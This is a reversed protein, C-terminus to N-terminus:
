NMTLLSMRWVKYRFACEPGECECSALEFPGLGDEGTDQVCATVVESACGGIVALDGTSYRDSGDPEPKYHLVTRVPQHGAATALVSRVLFTGGGIGSGVDPLEVTDPQPDRIFHVRRTGWADNADASGIFEAPAALPVLRLAQRENAEDCQAKAVTAFLSCDAPASVEVVALAALMGALFGIKIKM